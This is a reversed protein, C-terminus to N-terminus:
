AATSREGVATVYDWVFRETLEVVSRDANDLTDTHWHYHPIWDDDGMALFSIAPFGAKAPLLGDTPLLWNKLPVVEGEYRTALESALAVLNKDYEQYALMGEGLFYRLRGGGVNDLNIFVTDPALRADQMFRHMGRLGVEECGTFLFMPNIATADGRSAEAMWRHALALAVAVGSGNDNAGPVPRGTLWSGFLFAGTVVLLVSAVTAMIDVWGAGPVFWRLLVTVFALVLGAYTVMFFPELLRRFRPAFLWSGWQTDYHAVVVVDRPTHPSSRPPREGGAIGGAGAAGPIGDADGAEAIGAAGEAPAGRHRRPRAIVNQSDSKPLFVNFNLSTGLMEGILPVLAAAGLLVAVVPMSTSLRLAILLVVIVVTPGIYLTHRPSRFSQLEVDYGLAELRDRLWRAAIREGETASGRAPLKALQELYEWSRM